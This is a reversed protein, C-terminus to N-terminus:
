LNSEPGAYPRGSYYHSLNVIPNGSKVGHTNAWNCGSRQESDM